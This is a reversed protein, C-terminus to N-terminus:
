SEAKDQELRDCIGNKDVDIFNRGKGQGNMLVRGQGNMMGKGQGQTSGNCYGNGNGKRGQVQTRNEYNDCVGNKNEDTMSPPNAQNRGQRDQPQGNQSFGLTTIAFFALGTIFLKTKMSIYKNKNTEINDTDCEAQPSCERVM